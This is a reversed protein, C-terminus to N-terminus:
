KKFREYFESFEYKPKPQKEVGESIRRFQKGDITLTEQNLENGTRGQKGGHKKAVEEWEDDHEGNPDFIPKYKEPDMAILIGMAEMTDTDSTNSRTLEGEEDEDGVFLERGGQLKKVLDNVGPYWADSGKPEKDAMMEKAKELDDAMKEKFEADNIDTGPEEGSPEEGGELEDYEADLADWKKMVEAKGEGSKDMGPQDLRNWQRNLSERENDIQAMRKEPSKKGKEEGGEPEDDAQQAQKSGPHDKIYQAQASADMDDWWDEKLKNVQHKEMVDEFTPLPDGFERKGFFREYNEQLIHKKM